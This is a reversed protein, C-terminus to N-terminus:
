ICGGTQKTHQSKLRSRNAKCYPRYPCMGTAADVWGNTCQSCPWPKDKAQASSAILLLAVITIARIM